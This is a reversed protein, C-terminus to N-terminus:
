PNMVHASVAHADIQAQHASSFFAFYLVCLALLKVCLLATIEARFTMKRM